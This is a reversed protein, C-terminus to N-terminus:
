PLPGILPARQRPDRQHSATRSLMPLTFSVGKTLTPNIQPATM